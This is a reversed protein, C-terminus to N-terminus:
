SFGTGTNFCATRASSGVERCELLANTGSQCTDGASSGSPFCNAGWVPELASLNIIEPKSYIVKEHTKTDM